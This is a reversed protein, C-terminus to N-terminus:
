ERNEKRLWDMQRNREIEQEGMVTACNLAVRSALKADSKKPNEQNAIRQLHTKYYRPFCGFELAKKACGAAFQQAAPGSWRGPILDTALVLKECVETVVEGETFDRNEIGYNALVAEVSM